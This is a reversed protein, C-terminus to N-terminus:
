YKEYHRRHLDDVKTLYWVGKQKETIEPAWSKSLFLSSRKDVMRHFESPSIKIRSDLMNTISQHDIVSQSDELLRASYMSATAGSGYSFLFVTKEEMVEAESQLVSLLCAFISACYMNGVKKTLWLSPQIITPCIMPNLSHLLNVAKIALKSYPSHVCVFDPVTTRESFSTYCHELATLYSEISLQGDVLPYASAMNAKYFDYIDASYFSPRSGFVIKANPGILLAVAAAGSTPRAPGRDYVAVDGAVVLALRGDWLTSEIWSLASFLAATGGFCASLHDSGSIDHRPHFLRMLVSKISKARDVHSESGVDIRGILSRDIGLRTLLRDAVTLCISNIDENETCFGLQEQLLGKTYKGESVGDHKELEQQDVYYQPTYFEAAIIGVNLSARMSATM